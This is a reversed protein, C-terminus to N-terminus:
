WAPTAAAAAAPLLAGSAAYVAAAAIVVAILFAVLGGGKAAEGDAEKWGTIMPRVLNEKKARAYFMIAAVHAVVLAILVPEMSEHLETLGHSLSESVLGALPGYFSSDDNSFLGSAVQIGVVALIALVSLAGLPNHGLGQWEGKLYAKISQPGRVFTCFRAYTSGVFGWVIRFVLLGLITLGVRGHWEMSDLSETIFAGAILAVLLWHFLRTPLDWIKIRAMINRGKM